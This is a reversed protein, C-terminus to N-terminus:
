STQHWEDVGELWGAAGLTRSSVKAPEPAPGVWVHPIDARTTNVGPWVGGSKYMFIPVGAPLDAITAM